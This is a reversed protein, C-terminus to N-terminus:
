SNELIHIGKRFYYIVLGLSIVVYILFWATLLYLDSLNLIHDNLWRRIVHYVPNAGIFIIVVQLATATLLFMIAGM